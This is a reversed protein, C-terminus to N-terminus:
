KITIPKTITYGVHDKGQKRLLIIRLSYELDQEYKNFRFYLKNYNDKVEFIQYYVAVNKNLPLVEVLLVDNANRAYEDGMVVYCEGTEGESYDESYFVVDFINTADRVLFSNVNYEIRKNYPLSAIIKRYMENNVRIGNELASIAKEYTETRENVLFTLSDLFRMDVTALISDTKALRENANNEVKDLLDSVRNYGFLVLITSVAIVCGWLTKMSRKFSQIEVRYQFLEDRLKECAQNNDQHNQEPGIEIRKAM